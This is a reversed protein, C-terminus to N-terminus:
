AGGGREEARVRVVLALALATLSVGVVIATLVLVHPLPNVSPADRTADRVLPSRGGSRYAAAVFFLLVGTQFVNLGVVKKLRSPEGVLVGLGVGVLAVAALYPLRALYAELM